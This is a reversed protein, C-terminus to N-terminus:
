SATPRRRLDRHRGSTRDPRHTGPVRRLLDRVGDRGEVTVINWSFAVLDRWFCEPAFMAAARDLDRAELAASFEALWADVRATETRDATESM